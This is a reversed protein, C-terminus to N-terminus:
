HHSILAFRGRKAVGSEPKLVLMIGSCAESEAPKLYRIIGHRFLTLQIRLDVYSCSNMHNLLFSTEFM